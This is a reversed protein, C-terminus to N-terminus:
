VHVSCVCVSKLPYYETIKKVKVNIEDQLMFGDRQYIKQLANDRM